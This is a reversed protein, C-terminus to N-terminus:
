TDWLAGGLSLLAQHPAERFAISFVPCVSNDCFCMKVTGYCGRCGQCREGWFWLEECVEPPKDDCFEFAVRGPLRGSM